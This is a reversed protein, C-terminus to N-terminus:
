WGSTVDSLFSYPAFLSLVYFLIGFIWLMKAKGDGGPIPQLAQASAAPSRGRGGRERAM